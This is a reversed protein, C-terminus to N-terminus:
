KSQPDSQSELNEGKRCLGQDRLYRVDSATLISPGIYTGYWANPDPQPSQASRCVVRVRSGNPIQLSRDWVFYLGSRADGAARQWALPHSAAWGERLRYCIATADIRCGPASDLTIDEVPYQGVCSGLMLMMLVFFRACRAKSPRVPRTEDHRGDKARDAAQSVGGIKKVCRSEDLNM